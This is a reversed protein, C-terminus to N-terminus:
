GREIGLAQVKVLARGAHQPNYNAGATDQKGTDKPHLREVTPPQGHVSDIVDQTRRKLQSRSPM